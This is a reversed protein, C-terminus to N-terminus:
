SLSTELRGRTIHCCALALFSEHNDDRRDSRVLLRRRKHLWAFSRKVVWRQRGRGSGHQTQRRAIV